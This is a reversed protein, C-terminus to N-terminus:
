SGHKEELKHRTDDDIDDARPLGVSERFENLAEITQEDSEGTVDCCFGLNKLRTQVGNWSAVPDLFGLKIELKLLDPEEGVTLVAKKATGPIPVDIKGDPDTFGTITQKEDIVLTFPENARPEDQDLIRTAFHSPEGRRVFRHRMETAGPEQKARLAPVTVRDGPLLVNPKRRTDKLETNAPDDWLTQWFHGTQKAISSMCDGSKVVFDGVGVANADPALSQDGAQADSGAGDPQATADDSPAADAAAPSPAADPPLEGPGSQSPPPATAVATTGGGAPASKKAAKAMEALRKSFDDQASPM